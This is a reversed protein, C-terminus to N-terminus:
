RRRGVTEVLTMLVLALVQVAVLIVGGSCDCAGSVVVVVVVVVVTITPVAFVTRYCPWTPWHHMRTKMRPVLRPAPIKPHRWVLCETETFHPTSRHCYEAM